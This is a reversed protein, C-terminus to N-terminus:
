PRQPRVAPGGLGGRNPDPAGAPPTQQRAPGQPRRPADAVGGCRARSHYRPWPYTRRPGAPRGYIGNSATHVQRILDTLWAHRIARPSPARGRWAYFGSEAVSVVRCAVQVPLGEAAMTQIAAYRVKPRMAEKLLEAARQTVALETELEVIRRRAAVLEAHDSSSLGPLQGTDILEQQRWNYITEM